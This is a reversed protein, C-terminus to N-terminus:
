EKKQTSESEGSLVENDNISPVPYPSNIFGFNFTKFSSLCTQFIYISFLISHFILFPLINARTITLILTCVKRDETNTGREELYRTFNYSIHAFLQEGHRCKYFRRCDEQVLSSEFSKSFVFSIVGIKQKFIRTSM